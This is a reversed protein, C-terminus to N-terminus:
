RIGQKQLASTISEKIASREKRLAEIGAFEKAYEQKLSFLFGNDGPYAQTHRNGGAIITQPIEEFARCDGGSASKGTNYHVCFICNPPLFYM